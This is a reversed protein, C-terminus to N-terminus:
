TNDFNWGLKQWDPRIWLPCRGKKLGARVPNSGIYQIVRYLHEEDRIIRDFSEPQWLPGSLGFLRNIEFSSHRKWSQLIRELPESQPVLPRVVGHVHNPIVVYCALDYREGDFYHMAKVVIKAAAPHRLWCRGMGQDLWKEVCRMTEHALQDVAGTYSPASKSAGM